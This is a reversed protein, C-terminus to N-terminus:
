DPISFCGSKDRSIEVVLSKSNFVTARDFVGGFDPSLINSLFKRLNKKKMKTREREREREGEKGSAISRGFRQGQMGRHYYKRM